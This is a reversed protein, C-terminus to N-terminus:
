QQGYQCGPPVPPMAPSPIYTRIPQSGRTVEQDPLGRATDAGRDGKLIELPSLNPYGAVGM